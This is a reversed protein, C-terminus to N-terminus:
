GRTCYKGTYEDICKSKVNDESYRVKCTEGSTFPVESTLPTTTAQAVMPIEGSAMTVANVLQRDDNHRDFAHQEAVTTNKIGRLIARVLGLPYHTAAACRGSVLQQDKHTKDCRRSMQAAMQISLTMFKTPKMALTPNGNKDPTTLGYACQHAVVCHVLPHRALAMM